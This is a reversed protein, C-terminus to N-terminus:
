SQWASYDWEPNAVSADVAFCTVVEATKGDVFAVFNWQDTHVGAVRLEAAQVRLEALADGVGLTSVGRKALHQARREYISLFHSAPLANTSPSRFQAGERLADRCRQAIPTQPLAAIFDERTWNVGVTQGV